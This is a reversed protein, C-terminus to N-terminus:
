LNKTNADFSDLLIKIQELARARHSITNKVDQGLQAFTLDNNGIETPIFIPDYGFGTDGRSELAIKGEVVGQTTQYKGSEPDFLCASCIFRATRNPDPTNKLEELFESPLRVM